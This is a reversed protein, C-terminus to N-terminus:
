NCAVCATFKTPWLVLKRTVLSLLGIVPDTSVIEPVLIKDLGIGAVVLHEVPSQSVAITDRWSM